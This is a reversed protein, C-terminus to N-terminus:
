FFVYPKLGAYDGLLHDIQLNHLQTRLPGALDPPRRSGANIPSRPPIQIHVFKLVLVLSLLSKFHDPSSLGQGNLVVRVERPRLVFTRLKVSAVYWDLPHYLIESISFTRITLRHPCFFKHGLRM